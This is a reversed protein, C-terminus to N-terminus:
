IIGFLFCKLASPLYQTFISSNLKLSAVKKQKLIKLKFM